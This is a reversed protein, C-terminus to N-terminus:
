NENIIIINFNKERTYFKEMVIHHCLVTVIQSCM